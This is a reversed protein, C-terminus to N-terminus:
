NKKGFGYVFRDESAVILMGNWILPSTRIRGRMQFRWEEEGTERRIGYLIRDLTGFYVWRSTVLPSTGVVSETEFRWKEMGDEAAVCYLVGLTTGFYVFGGAVAATEYIGGTDEFQWAVSGNELSLGYFVGERTGVFIMGDALVPSVAVTGTLNQKWVTKGDILALAWVTGKGTACILTEGNQAVSGSLPEGTDKKWLIEGSRSDLAIVEGWGNGVVIRNGTILPEGEIPGIKKKWITKGTVFDISRLSEKGWQQAVVLRDDNIVCTVDVKKQIKIKRVSEGTKLRLVTIWGDKTGFFLFTDATVMARGVASSAKYTWALELPPQIEESSRGSRRNDGGWCWTKRSGSFEIGKLLSKHCSGICLIVVISVIIGVPKQKDM